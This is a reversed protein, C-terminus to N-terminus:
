RWLRPHRAPSGADIIRGQAANEIVTRMRAISTDGCQPLSRCTLMFDSLAFPSRLLQGLTVQHLYPDERFAKRFGAAPGMYHLIQAITWNEFPNLTIGQQPPETQDNLAEVQM